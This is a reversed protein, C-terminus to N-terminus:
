IQKLSSIILMDEVSIQISSNTIEIIEKLQLISGLHYNYVLLAKYFNEASNFYASEKPYKNFVFQVVNAKIETLLSPHVLPMHNDLLVKKYTNFKEEIGSILKLYDYFPLNYIINNM